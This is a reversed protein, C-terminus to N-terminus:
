YTAYFHLFFRRCVNIIVITLTVIPKKLLRLRYEITPRYHMTEFLIRVVEERLFVRDDSGTTM